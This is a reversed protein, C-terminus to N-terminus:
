RCPDACYYNCMIHTHCAPKDGGAGFLLSPGLSAVCVVFVVCCDYDLHLGSALSYPPLPPLYFLLLISFICPVYTLFCYVRAITTAAASPFHVNKQGSYTKKLPLMADVVIRREMECSDCGEM